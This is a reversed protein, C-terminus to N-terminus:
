GVLVHIVGAVVHSIKYAFAYYDSQKGPLHHRFETDTRLEGNIPAHELRTKCTSGHM